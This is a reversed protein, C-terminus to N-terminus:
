GQRGQRLRRRATADQIKYLLENIAVPKMLYDFAGLDMGEVAVEMNAHGTLLIVETDPAIKRLRRLVELGDMGPMKVDLVVVDFGGDQALGLGAEGSGATSVVLGRKVLRKGLLERFDDEDDVLLVKM